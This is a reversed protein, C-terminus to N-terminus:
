CSIDNLLINNHKFSAHCNPLLIMVSSKVITYIKLVVIINNNNNDTDNNNNNNCYRNLAQRTHHSQRGGYSVIKYRWTFNLNSVLYIYLYIM